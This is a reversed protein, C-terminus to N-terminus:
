MEERWTFTWRKENRMSHKLVVSDTTYRIHTIQILRFLFICWILWISIIWCAVARENSKQVIKGKQRFYCFAPFFGNQALNYHTKTHLHSPNCIKYLDDMQIPNSLINVHLLTISNAWNIQEIRKNIMNDADWIPKIEHIQILTCQIIIVGCWRIKFSYNFFFEWFFQFCEKQDQIAKERDMGM